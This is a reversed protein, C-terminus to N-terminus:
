SYRGTVRASTVVIPNGDRSVAGAEFATVFAAMIGSDALNVEDGVLQLASLDPGPISTNGKRNNVTDVYFVKIALERQAFQNAPVVGSASHFVLSANLALENCLTIAEAAVRIANHLATNAILNAATLTEGYWQMRTGEGSNDILSLSIKDAM